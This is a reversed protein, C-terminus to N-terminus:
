KFNSCSFLYVLIVEILILGILFVGMYQVCVCVLYPFLYVSVNDDKRPNLM